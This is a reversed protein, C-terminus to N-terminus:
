MEKEFDLITAFVVAHLNHQGSHVELNWTDRIAAIKHRVSAVEAGTPDIMRYKRRIVNGQTSLEVQNSAPNVWQAKMGGVLFSRKLQILGVMQQQEPEVVNFNSSWTGNGKVIKLAEQDDADHVTYTYNMGRAMWKGMYDSVLKGAINSGAKLRVFCLVNGEKDSVTYNKGLSMIKKKMLLETKGNLAAMVRDLAQNSM